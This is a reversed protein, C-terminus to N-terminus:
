MRHKKASSAYQDSQIEELTRRDRKNANLVKVEDEEVRSKIAERQLIRANKEFKRDISNQQSQKLAREQGIHEEPMEGQNIEELVEPPAEGEKYVVITCEDTFESPEKHAIWEENVEEVQEHVVYKLIEMTVKVKDETAMDKTHEELLIPIKISTDDSIDFDLLKDQCSQRFDSMAQQATKTGENNVGDGRSSSAASETKKPKATAVAVHHNTRRQAGLLSGLLGGRKKTTEAAAAPKQQQKQRQQQQIKSNNHSSNIRKAGIPCDPIQSPELAIRCEMCDENSQKKQIFSVVCIAKQNGASKLAFMGFASKKREKLYKIFGPLKKRGDVSKVSYSLFSKSPKWSWNDRTYGEFVIKEPFSREWIIRNTANTAANGGDVELREVTALFEPKKGPSPILFFQINKM